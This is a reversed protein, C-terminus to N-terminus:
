SEQSLLVYGFSVVNSSHSSVSEASSSLRSFMGSPFATATSRIFSTLGGLLAASSWVPADPGLGTVGQLHRDRAPRKASCHLIAHKFTEPAEDCSPCTTAAPNDSYPHAPLYSKGSRMQHLRGADFKSLGMFPNPKLLPRYAYKAPDPAATEGEEMLLKRCLLKLQPYARGPPPAPYTEGLLHQSTVPLLASGDPGLTFLMSHPLAYQPLHTRNNTPPRSRRWPLPLRAGPNWHSLISHDPAHRHLSHTQLSAPLRTAAPNIEPPSCMVRLCALHYKYALLLDLPPLCAEVALIETPTCSFCNTTWRQVKHWFASLKRTM